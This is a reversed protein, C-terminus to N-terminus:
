FEYKIEKKCWNKNFLIINRLLELSVKFDYCCEIKYYLIVWMFLKYFKILLSFFIFYNVLYFLFIKLLFFVVMFVLFVLYNLFM